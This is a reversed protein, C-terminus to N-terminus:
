ILKNRMGLTRRITNGSPTFTSIDCYIVNWEMGCIPKPITVASVIRFVMQVTVNRLVM